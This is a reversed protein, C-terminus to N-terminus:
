LRCLTRSIRSDRLLECHQAKEEIRSRMELKVNSGFSTSTAPKRKLMNQHDFGTDLSQTVECSTLTAM